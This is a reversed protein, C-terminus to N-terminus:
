QGPPGHMIAHLDKAMVRSLKILIVVMSVVVLTTIGVMAIRRVSDRMLQTVDQETHNPM